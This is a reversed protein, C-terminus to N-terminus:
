NTSYQRHWLFLRRSRTARSGSPTTLHSNPYRNLRVVRRSLYALPKPGQSSLISAMVMVRGMTTRRNSGIESRNGSFAMGEGRGVTGGGLQMKHSPGAEGGARIPQSSVGSRWTTNTTQPEHELQSSASSSLRM